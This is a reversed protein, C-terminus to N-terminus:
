KPTLISSSGPSQSSQSLITRILDDAFPPLENAVPDGSGRPTWEVVFDGHGVDDYLSLSVSPCGRKQLLDHLDASEIHPVTIDSRSAMLHVHSPLRSVNVDAHHSTPPKRLLVAPSQDAFAAQGGVARKMTSLHHVNRSKEYEYHRAIDYVGAMGVFSEPVYGSDGEKSKARELLLMACLHAGASHGVLVVNQRTGEVCHKVVWDLARGVEEVMKGSTTDPFLSYECVCTTIGEEALRSAMKAYHWKSGSAWVGGHVFLVVPLTTDQHARRAEKRRYVDLVNRPAPGYREDRTLSVAVGGRDAALRQYHWYSSCAFPIMSVIGLVEKGLVKSYAGLATVKAGLTQKTQIDLSIGRLAEVISM